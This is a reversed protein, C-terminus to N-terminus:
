RAWDKKPVGPKYRSNYFREEMPIMDGGECLECGKTLGRYNIDGITIEKPDPKGSAGTKGDDTIFRHVRAVEHRHHDPSYRNDLIIMDHNRVCRQGKYDTFPPKIPSDKWIYLEFEGAEM